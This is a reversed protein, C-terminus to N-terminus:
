CAVLKKSLGSSSTGSFFISGGVEIYGVLHAVPFESQPTGAFPVLAFPVLATAYGQVSRVTHVAKALEVAACHGELWQVPLPQHPHHLKQLSRLAPSSSSSSSFSSSSVLWFASSFSLFFSSCLYFCSKSNQFYSM